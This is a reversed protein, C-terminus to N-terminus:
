YWCDQNDAGIPLDNRFVVIRAPQGHVPHHKERGFVLSREPDGVIM